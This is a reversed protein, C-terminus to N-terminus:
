RSPWKKEERISYAALWLLFVCNHLRDELREEEGVFAGTERLEAVMDEDKILAFQARIYANRTFLARVSPDCDGAHSCEMVQERTLQLGFRNFWHTYKIFSPM